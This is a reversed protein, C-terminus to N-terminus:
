YTSGALMISHISNVHNQYSLFYTVLHKPCQWLSDEIHWNGNIYVHHGKQQKLLDLCVPVWFSHSSGSLMCYIEERDHDLLVKVLYIMAFHNLQIDSFAM